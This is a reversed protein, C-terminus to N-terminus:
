ESSRWSIPPGHARHRLPKAAPSALARFRRLMSRASVPPVKAVFKADAVAFEAFCGDVDFGTNVQAVGLTERGSLCNECDGCSHALWAIAVRDGESVETVGRGRDVVIGVGEHGPVFPLERRAPWEGRATQLDTHCLGSAEIKVLVQGDRPTPKPVEEDVLPAGYCRFVAAKMM